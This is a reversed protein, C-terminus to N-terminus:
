VLYVVGNFFYVSRAECYDHLVIFFLICVAKDKYNERCEHTFIFLEPNWQRKLMRIDFGVIYYYLSFVQKHEEKITHSTNRQLIYFKSFRWYHPVLCKMQRCQEIITTENLKLLNVITAKVAISDWEAYQYWPIRQKM